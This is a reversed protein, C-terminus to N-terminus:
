PRKGKRVFEFKADKTGEAPLEFTTSFNITNESTMTPYIDFGVAYSGPRFGETPPVSFKGDRFGVTRSEGPHDKDGAINCFMTGLPAPAGDLTVTGTFEVGPEAGFQCGALLLIVGSLVPWSLSKRM